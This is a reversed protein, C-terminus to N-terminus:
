IIRRLEAAATERVARDTDRIQEFSTQDQSWDNQMVRDVLAPIGMFPLEERLFAEVAMENAGNYAIPYGGQAKLALYALPIMPFQEPDVPSFTLELGGLDLPKLPSELIDPYTLANQIPHIMNPPSIQAYLVGDRTRILSHVHSQPHIIVKIKEPPMNFLYFAEMIELGKNAMTASDVTIKPGMSWTPHKLAEKVTIRTMEERSLLRFPGGSATLILEDAPGPQGGRLLHDLASHESDVPLIRAGKQRALDFLLTGGMIVSEKNALALDRGYKLAELSPEFGATGAIGNLVMDAETERILSLLGQPGQYPFDSAEEPRSLALRNVGWEEGLQKLAAASGHASLGVVEIQRSLGRCVQLSNKGISGTAGLIILRKKDM